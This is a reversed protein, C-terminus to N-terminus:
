ENEEKNYLKCIVWTGNPYRQTKMNDKCGRCGASGINFDRFKCQPLTGSGHIKYPTKVPYPDKKSQRNDLAENNRHMEDKKAVFFKVVEDFRTQLDPDQRRFAIVGSLYDEIVIDLIDWYLSDGVNSTSGVTLLGAGGHKDFLSPYYKISSLLNKLDDKTRIHIGEIEIKM